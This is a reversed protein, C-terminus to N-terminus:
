NVDLLFIIVDTGPRDSVPKDNIRIFSFFNDKMPRGRSMKM